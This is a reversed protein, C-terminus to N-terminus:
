WCWQIARWWVNAAVQQRNEQRLNPWIKSISGTIPCHIAVACLCADSEKKSISTKGNYIYIFPCHVSDAGNYPGGDCTQLWKNATRKGWTPDSKRFRAPSRVIYPWLAFAHMVRKRLYQHKVMTYTYSLAISVILVMTHGEMVRKCGSTPPERAEPQTLNEFDLRHDSLTHGCRLPM